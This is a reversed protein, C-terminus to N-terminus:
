KHFDGEALFNGKPTGVTLIKGNKTRYIKFAKKM